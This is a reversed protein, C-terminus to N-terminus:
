RRIINNKFYSGLDNYYQQAKEDTLGIYRTTVKEDDHNFMCQIMYIADKDDSHLKMQWYGFTKRMSHTSVNFTIGVADSAEKIIQEARDVKIYGKGDKDVQRSKFIYDNYSEKIDIRARKIYFNIADKVIENIYPTAWKDTKSEFIEIKDKIEGNPYLIDCWKLSLLDGCRRGINIGMIFLLYNRYQWNSLYYQVIDNIQEMTTFPFVETKGVKKNNPIRKDRNDDKTRKPSKPISLEIVEASQPEEQKFFPIVAGM